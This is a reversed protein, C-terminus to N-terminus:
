LDRGESGGVQSENCCFGLTKIPRIKDATNESQSQAKHPLKSEEEKLTTIKDTKEKPGQITITM